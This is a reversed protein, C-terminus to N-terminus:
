ILLFNKAYNIDEDSFDFASPKNFRIFEEDIPTHPHDMDNTSGKVLVGSVHKRTSSDYEHYCNIGDTNSYESYFNNELSLTYHRKPCQFLQQHCHPDIEMLIDNCIKCHLSDSM